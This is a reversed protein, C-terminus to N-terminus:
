VRRPKKAKVGNFPVPTVDSITTIYIGKMVFSRIGAERGAGVGSVVVTVEKMGLDAAKESLVEGIRSAVFPTGKKAGKFGLSGSSSKALVNGKKDTLVLTTNNYTARVYLKGSEVRKKSSSRTTSVAEETKAETDTITAIQKKGM